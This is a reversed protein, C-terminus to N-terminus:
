RAGYEALTETVRRPARYTQRLIDAQVTAPFARAATVTAFTEEAQCRRGDPDTWRALHPRVAAERRHGLRPAAIRLENRSDCPMPFGSDSGPLMTVTRGDASVEM